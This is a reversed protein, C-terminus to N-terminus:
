YAAPCLTLLRYHLRPDTRARTNACDSLRDNQRAAEAQESVVLFYSYYLSSTTRAQQGQHGAHRHAHRHRSQVGPTQREHGGGTRPQGSGGCVAVSFWVVGCWVVGCWVVVVCWVTCLRGDSMSSVFGVLLSRGDCLIGTACGCMRWFADCDGLYRGAELQGGVGSVVGSVDVGSVDVGSVGLSSM